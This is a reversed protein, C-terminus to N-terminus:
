EVVVLDAVLSILVFLVFSSLAAVAGTVSLLLRLVPFVCLFVLFLCVDSEFVFFPKPFTVPLIGVDDSNM